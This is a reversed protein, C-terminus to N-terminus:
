RAVDAAEGAAGALGSRGPAAPRALARRSSRAAAGARDRPGDADPVVPQEAVAARRGAGAGDADRLARRPGHRPAREVREPRRPERGEGARDYRSQAAQVSGPSVAPPADAPLQGDGTGAAAR